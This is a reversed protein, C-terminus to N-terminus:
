EKQQRWRRRISSSRRHWASLTETGPPDCPLSILPSITPPIPLPILLSIQPSIPKRPPYASARRRLGEEADRAALFRREPGSFAAGLLASPGGSRHATVHAAALSPRQQTHGHEGHTPKALLGAHMLAHCLDLADPGDAAPPRVVLANLLGRGRV